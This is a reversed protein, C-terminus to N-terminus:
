RFKNRKRVHEQVQEIPM